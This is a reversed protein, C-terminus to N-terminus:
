GGHVRNGFGAQCNGNGLFAAQADHVFIEACLILGRLHGPDFAVLRTHQTVRDHDGWLVRHALHHGQGLM